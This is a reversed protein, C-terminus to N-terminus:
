ISTKWKLNKTLGKARKAGEHNCKRMHCLLLPTPQGLHDAAGTSRAFEGRAIESLDQAFKRRGSIRSNKDIEPSM